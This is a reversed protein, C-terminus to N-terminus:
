AAEGDPEHDSADVKEPQRAAPKVLSGGTPKRSNQKKPKMGSYRCSKLYSDSWARFQASANRAKLTELNGALLKRALHTTMAYAMLAHQIMVKREFGYDARGRYDNLVLRLHERDEPTFLNSSEIVRALWTIPEKDSDNPARGFVEAASSKM